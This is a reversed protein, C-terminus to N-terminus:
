CDSGPDTEGARPRSRRDGGAQIGPSRRGHPGEVVVADPLRGHREGWRKCLVRAARGSSVIPVLKTKMNGGLLEPLDLPLGGGSFIIDIGEAVSTKVMDAYNSLAVMINVGLIGRTMERAKQIEKKLARINAGLYNTFFDPEHMGIGAAAIVGIGGENAVAAALGALSIGVGMGGQIIPLRAKLDGIKLEPLKNLKMEMKM